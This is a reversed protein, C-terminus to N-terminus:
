GGWSAEDVTVVSILRPGLDRLPNTAGEVQTWTKPWYWYGNASPM